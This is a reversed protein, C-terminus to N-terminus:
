FLLCSIFVGDTTNFLESEFILNSRFLYKASFRFGVSQVFVGHWAPKERSECSGIKGSKQQHFDTTPWKRVELPGHCCIPQKLYFKNQALKAAILVLLEPEAITFVGRLWLPYGRNM